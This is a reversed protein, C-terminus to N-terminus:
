QVVAKGSAIDALNSNLATQDTVSIVRAGGRSGNSSSSSAGSGGNGTPEYYEPFDQVYKDKFFADITVSIPNGREDLVEIEEQADLRFFPKTNKVVHPVLKKRVGGELAAQAIRNDLLFTQIRENRKQIEAQLAQIEVEKEDLFTKKWGEWDGEEKKGNRAAEEAAAKLRKYEEADMGKYKELSKAADAAAKKADLAAQKERELAAKLPETDEDPEADLVYSGNNGPDTYLEKQADSLKDFEEKTLKRKLAMPVAEADSNVPVASRYIDIADNPDKLKHVRAGRKILDREIERFVTEVGKMMSKQGDRQPVMPQRLLFLDVDLPKDPNAKLWKRLARAMQVGECIWDGPEDFWKSAHESSKSWNEGNSQNAPFLGELEQSTHLTSIGFEEILKGSLTTKGVRPGGIIVVRRPM